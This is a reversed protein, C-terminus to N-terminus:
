VTNAPSPQVDSVASGVALVGAAEAFDRKITLERDDRSRAEGSGDKRRPERPHRGEGPPLRLWRCPPEM